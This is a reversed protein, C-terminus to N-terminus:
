LPKFMARQGGRGWSHLLPSQVTAGSWGGAQRGADPSYRDPELQPFAGYGPHLAACDPSRVAGALAGSEPRVAKM